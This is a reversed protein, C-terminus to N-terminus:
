SRRRERIPEERHHPLWADLLPTAQGHDAVDILNLWIEDVPLWWHGLTSECPVEDAAGVVRRHSFAWENACWGRDGGEAPRFDRCTRCIRPLEPALVGRDGADL